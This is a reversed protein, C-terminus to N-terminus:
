AACQWQGGAIEEAARKRGRGQARWVERTAPPMRMQNWWRRLTELKGRATRVPANYLHRIVTDSYETGELLRLLYADECRKAAVQHLLTLKAFLGTGYGLKLATMCIDVDDGGVLSGGTRGLKGSLSSAAGDAYAEAVDRRLCLGAGFPITDTDLGLNSWQDRELRRVTLLYEYPRFWEPMPAELSPLCQGGWTGLSPHSTAIAHAHELYNPDLICDDDVFVILPATSECIGCFRANSLGLKTEVVHRAKPHWSLDFLKSIPPSSANDVLVLEWQMADLTQAKLSQLAKELFDRRPNYACIVVSLTAESM